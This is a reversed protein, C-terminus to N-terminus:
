GGFPRNRKPTQQAQMEEPMEESLKTGLVQELFRRTRRTLNYSGLLGLTAQGFSDTQFGEALADFEVEVRLELLTQSVIVALEHQEDHLLREVERELSFARIARSHRSVASIMWWRENPYFPATAGRGVWLLLALAAVPLM